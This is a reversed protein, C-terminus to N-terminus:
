DVITFKKEQLEDLIYALEYTSLDTINIENEEEDIAYGDCTISRITCEEGPGFDYDLISEDIHATFENHLDIKSIDPKTLFWDKIETYLDNHLDSVRQANKRM